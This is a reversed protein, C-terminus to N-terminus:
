GTIVLFHIVLNERGCYNLLKGDTQRWQATRQDQASRRSRAQYRAALTSWFRQVHDVRWIACHEQVFAEERRDPLESHRYGRNGIHTDHFRSQCVLVILVM